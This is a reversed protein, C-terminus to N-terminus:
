RFDAWHRSPQNETGTKLRYIMVALEGRTVPQGLFRITSPIANKQSLANAYVFYWRPDSSDEREMSVSFVRSVLKAAEVFSVARTPRFFGDPYGHILSSAKANCIDLAFADDTTVDNFLLAGTGYAGLCGNDRGAFLFESTMLQALENRRIRQDPHYEGSTYDGKLINHTRLYEIAAYDHRSKPVDIFPRVSFPSFPNRESSVSPAPSSSASSAYYPAKGLQSPFMAHASPSLMMVVMMWLLLAFAVFIGASWNRYVLSNM